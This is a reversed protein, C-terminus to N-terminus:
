PFSTAAGIIACLNPIDRYDSANLKWGVYDPNVALLRRETGAFLDGCDSLPRPERTVIPVIQAAELRNNLEPTILEDWIPDFIFAKTKLM